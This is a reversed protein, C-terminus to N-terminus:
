LPPLHPLPTSHLPTSSLPPLVRLLSCWLVFRQVQSTSTDQRTAEGYVASPWSKHVMEEHPLSRQVLTALGHEKRWELIVKLNEPPDKIRDPYRRFLM